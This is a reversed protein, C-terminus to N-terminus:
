RREKREYYGRGTHARPNTFIDKLQAITIHRRFLQTRGKIPHNLATGITGTTTYVNVQVERKTFILLGILTQREKLFYGHAKALAEVAVSDLPTPM